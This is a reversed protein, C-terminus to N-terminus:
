FGTNLFISHRSCFQGIVFVPTKGTVAKDKQFIQKLKLAEQFSDIQHVLSGFTWTRMKRFCQLKIKPHKKGTLIMLYFTIVSRKLVNIPLHNNAGGVQERHVLFCHNRKKEAARSILGVNTM